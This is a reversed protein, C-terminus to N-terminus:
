TGAPPRTFPVPGSNVNAFYYGFALPGLDYTAMLFGAQEYGVQNIGTYPVKFAWLELRVDVSIGQAISLNDIRDVALVATTATHSYSVLGSLRLDPQAQASAALVLGVSCILMTLYKASRRIRGM